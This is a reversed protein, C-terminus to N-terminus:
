DQMAYLQILEFLFDRGEYLSRVRLRENLGHVGNGDPDTFM